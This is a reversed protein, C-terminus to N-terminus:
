RGVLYWNNWISLRLRPNLTGFSNACSKGVALCIVLVVCNNKAGLKILSWDHVVTGFAGALVTAMVPEICMAAAVDIPSSVLIGAAAICGAFVTYM